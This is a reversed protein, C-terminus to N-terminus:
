GSVEELVSDTAGRAIARKSEAVFAAMEAVPPCDRGREELQAITEKKTLNRRLVHWFADRVGTVHERAMGSRRMGVLNVTNITNRGGVVCFPPVDCSTGEQGSIFALRGVRTFQHLSTNGSMMVNDGIQGHGAVLASNALIVNNGIRGDHGVHSCSMMFVRTGLTTPVDAKTAAHVTAHERIISDPGIRVGATPDGIKFKFDQPPFGLCAYPYIITNAGIELPGQLQVSAVLRVGAGLRVRGALMCWPGIDVGPGLECEPGVIATPHIRVPAPTPDSM